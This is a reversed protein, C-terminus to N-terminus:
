EGLAPKNFQVELLAGRLFPKLNLLEDQDMIGGKYEEGAWRDLTYEVADSLSRVAREDFVLSIEADM